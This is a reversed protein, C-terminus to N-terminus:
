YWEECCGSRVGGCVVYWWWGSCWESSRVAMDAEGGCVVCLLEVVVAVAASSLAM